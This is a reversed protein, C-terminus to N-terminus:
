IQRGVALPTVRHGYVTAVTDAVVDRDDQPAIGVLNAV